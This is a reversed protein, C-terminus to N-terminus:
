VHKDFLAKRQASDRPLTRFTLSGGDKLENGGAWVADAGGVFATGGSIAM